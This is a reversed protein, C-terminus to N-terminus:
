EDLVVTPPSGRSIPVSCGQDFVPFGITNAKLDAPMWSNELCFSVALSDYGYGSHALRLRAMPLQQFNMAGTAM